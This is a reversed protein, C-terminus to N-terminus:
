RRPKPPEAHAPDEPWSHKPYRARLEKRVEAYSGRWFGALDQTVQVPRYNPGLLHLTVPIQDRWVRPGRSRGFLEQLRIELYPARDRLYHIAVRKGSPALFDRPAYEEIISRTRPQMARWLADSASKQKFVELQSEGYYLEELARTRIESWSELDALPAVGLGAPPESVFQYRDYLERAERELIGRRSAEAILLQFAEESSARRRKPETLPLGRYAEYFVEMVTLNETSEDLQVERENRIQERWQAGFLSAEDARTLGHALVCVADGTERHAPGGTALAFFFTADQVLSHPSLALGKGGALRARDARPARRKALRDAFAYALLHTVQERTFSAPPLPGGFIQEAVRKVTDRASFDVRARSSARDSLAELRPMLDSDEGRALPKDLFFDREQLIAALQAGLPALQLRQAEAWLAALRPELPSRAMQRGLETLRGQQDTARLDLLRAEADILSPEPPPTFWSFSRADTVGLAKLDLLVASLDIREIEPEDFAPFASEDIRSWLRYNLGPFQRGARGGRQTVSSLSIRELELRPFGARDRRDIRQLGTDVVTGIGDLTLSTEAVNTSLVVRPRPGRALAAQQDKLALRGHLEHIDAFTGLRPQLAERVRRIEGTGPLFVLVDEIRPERGTFINLIKEAVRDIFAPGVNLSLPEQGYRVDIPFNRGPVRVIPANGLHRSLADADLTASMVVLKLDPRALDQLEKVLGLALDTHRSREHFEDLVVASVGRLEPDQKLKQLFLGETYFAVRTDNSIKNEFRVAYGVEHGLSWAREEAIRTAAARAAIRRPELVVIREPLADALLPPLRTTKGAGPEAVVVLSTHSELASLVTGTAEDFPLPSLKM